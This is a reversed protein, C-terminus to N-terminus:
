LVKLIDNVGLFLFVDGNFLNDADYNSSTNGRWRNDM